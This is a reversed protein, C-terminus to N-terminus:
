LRVYQGVNTRQMKRASWMEGTGTKFREAGDRRRLASPLPKAATFRSRRSHWTCRIVAAACLWERAPAASREHGRPTGTPNRSTAFSGCCACVSSVGICVPVILSRSSVIRCRIARISWAGTM